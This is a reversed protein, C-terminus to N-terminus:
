DRKRELRNKFAQLMKPLNNEQLIKIVSTPVMLGFEIDIEYEVLTRDPSVERLRWVGENMKFFGQHLTWHIEQHPHGTFDLSYKIEKVIKVNFEVCRVNEDASLIRVKKLEDIFEPYRAFDWIADYCAQAPAKIVISQITKAM